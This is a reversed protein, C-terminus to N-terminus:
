QKTDNSPTNKREPQQVEDADSEPPAAQQGTHTGEEKGMKASADPAPSKGSLNDSTDGAFSVATGFILFIAALLLPKM